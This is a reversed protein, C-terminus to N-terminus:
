SFAPLSPLPLFPYPFPTRYKRKLKNAVRSDRCLRLRWLLSVMIYLTVLSSTSTGCSYWGTGHRCYVALPSGLCNLCKWGATSANLCANRGRVMGAPFARGCTTTSASESSVNLRYRLRWWCNQDDADQVMYMACM